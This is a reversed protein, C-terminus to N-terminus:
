ADNNKEENNEVGSFKVIEVTVSGKISADLRDRYKEPRNAKLLTTLLGDSYVTEQGVVDGQYYVDREVGDVARRRAEDELLDTGDEVAQHYAEDFLPDDKRWNRGTQTSVGAAECAKRFSHGARIAELIIEKRSPSEKTGYPTPPRTSRKM